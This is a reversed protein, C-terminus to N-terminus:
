RKIKAYMLYKENIKIYDYFKSCKMDYNVKVCIEAKFNPTLLKSRDDSCINNM